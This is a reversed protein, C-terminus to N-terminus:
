LLIWTPPCIGISATAVGAYWFKPAIVIKKSAKGLWAAWWSYSSNSIIFHDCLSMKYLDQAPHREASYSVYSIDSSSGFTARAFEEDESFVLARLGSQHSQMLRWASQYWLQDCVQHLKAAAPDTVYDGRRIHIAVSPHSVDDPPGSFGVIDQNFSFLRKISESSKAVYAHRQWYGSVLSPCQKPPFSLPQRITEVLISEGFISRAPGLRSALRELGGIASKRVPDIDFPRISFCDLQWGRQTRARNTMDVLRPEVGFAKGLTNAFAAQFMQNGLGGRVLVWMATRARM